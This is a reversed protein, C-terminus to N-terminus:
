MVNALCLNISKGYERVNACDTEESDYGIGYTDYDYDYSFKESVFVSVEDGDEFENNAFMWHSLWVVAEDDDEFDDDEFDYDEFDDDEPVLYMIPQYTWSSNKTLNRLEIRWPGVEMVRSVMSVICVNLGRIQAPVPLIRRPLCYRGYSDATSFWCHNLYEIHIWGLSRLVEEDIESLAQTKFKYQVETLTHSHISVVEPLASTEPHFTIKELSDCECVELFMTSSSPGHSKMIINDAKLVKLSEMGKMEVPLEGLNSCGDILLQTLNKLKGISRPLEQRNQLVDWCEEQHWLISRKWAKRPSEQRVIDRGMDQLLQHMELKDYLGTTLLCRNVLTKIGSSKCIGCEKLVDETLKRDEGIFLCAIHKFLEKDKDMPGPISPVLAVGDCPM